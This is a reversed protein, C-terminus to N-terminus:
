RRRPSCIHFTKKEKKDQGSTAAILSFCSFPSAIGRGSVQQCYRCRSMRCGCSCMSYAIRTSITCGPWWCRSCKSPRSAASMSSHGTRTPGSPPPFTIMIILCVDAPSAPLSRLCSVNISHLGPKLMATLRVLQPLFLPRVELKVARVTSLFM